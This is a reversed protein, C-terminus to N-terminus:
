RHPSSDPPQIGGRVQEAADEDPELDREETEDPERERESM